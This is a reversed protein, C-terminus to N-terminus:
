RSRPGPSCIASRCSAADRLASGSGGGRGRRAAWAGLAAETRGDEARAQWRRRADASAADFSLAQGAVMAEVGPARATHLRADVADLVQEAVTRGFRALWAQPIAGSNVITGTATGGSITAGFPSSLTLTMTESGEDHEDEIVPVPVTKSTQGPEFRVIGSMAEYDQGAVATGDSTAYRVSVASTQAAGLTM